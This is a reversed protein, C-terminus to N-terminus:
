EELGDADASIEGLGNCDQCLEVRTRYDQWPGNANVGGTTYEVEIHGEGNCEPCPKYFEPMMRADKM